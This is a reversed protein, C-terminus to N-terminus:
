GNKSKAKAFTMLAKQQEESLESVTEIIEELGPPPQMSKVIDLVALVQKKNLKPLLQIIQHQEESLSENGINVFLSSLGINLVKSLEILNRITPTRKGSMWMSITSNDVELKESIEVAKYRSNAINKRINEGLQKIELIATL